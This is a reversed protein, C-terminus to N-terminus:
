HENTVIKFEREGFNKKLWYGKKLGQLHYGEDGKLHFWILSDKDIFFVKKPISDKNYKFYIAKVAFYLGYRTFYIKKVKGKLKIYKLSNVYKYNSDLVSDLKQIKPYVVESSYYVMYLGIFAQPVIAIFLIFLLINKIKKDM